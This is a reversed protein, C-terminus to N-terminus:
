KLRFFSVLTQLMEAQSNLEESAAASEEATSSNELVVKSIEAINSNIVSISDAQERSMEAIDAIIGSMASINDAITSFSEVVNKAAGQVNDTNKGNADIIVSTEDTSQKSRGALNRVEEAVVSFGRGHEGARAAEVAANLALLNTQFAIDSIVKIIKSIEDGSAKVNDISALMSKVVEDGQKAYTTSKEARENANEANEASEKAKQDIIQMSATLEQIAANQRSSGDALQLAGNNIQEAGAVVQSTASQISAVTQNLSELITSLAAKISAYAGIYDKSISVTLDGHAMKDLVDAIDNIYSLTTKNNFNCAQKVKQFVGKFDGEIRSFDGKAMLEMNHEIQTLPAEVSEMLNNLTRVLEAWSGSFKEADIKAELNGEAANEALYVASEYLEKLNATVARLTQPLLNRKGPLDKIPANFDGEAIRNIVELTAAVDDAQRAVINNVSEVVERFSNEYKGSDARYEIDGIVNFERDIRTLDSIINKIVDTLNIVDSTLVGIEDDTIQATNVNIKGAAVNTVVSRLEDLPKLSKRIMAYMFVATVVLGLLNILMMNRQLDSVTNLSYELSHGVFLMGAPEVAGNLPFFNALYPVGFLDPTCSIQRRDGFVASVIHSEAALGEIRENTEPNIVTSPVSVAGGYGDPVFVMFEVGFIDKLNDLFHNMGVDFNVAVVGIIRGDDFIPMATTLVIPATPTPMFVTIEDGRIGASISPGGSVDDGYREPLLSRAVAIGQADTVIISDVGLIELRDATYQWIDERNGANMLRILEASGSLAAAATVTQQELTDIHASVASAVAEAREAEMSEVTLRTSRAAYLVSTIVLACVVMAVPFTIRSKLTNLLRFHVSQRGDTFATYLFIMAFGGTVSAPNINLMYVGPTTLAVGVLMIFIGALFLGAPRKNKNFAGILVVIGAITNMVAGATHVYFWLGRSYEIYRPWVTINQMNRLFPHFNATLAVFATMVPIAFVLVYAFKPLKREPVLFNYTLVFLIAAAFGPPILGLNWVFINLDPHVVLQEAINLLTWVIMNFCLFLLMKNKRTNSNARVAILIAILLLVVFYYVGVAIMNSMLGVEYFYDV